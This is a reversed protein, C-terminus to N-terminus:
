SDVIGLLEKDHVEYNINSTDFEHSHFAVLHLKGDDGQWSLISSLALLWILTKHSASYTKLLWTYVQSLPKRIRSVNCMECLHHLRGSWCQKSKTPDMSIGRLSNVYDLFEVERTKCLPWIRTSTKTSWLCSFWGGRTNKFLDVFWRDLCIILIINLLDRFIGNVIHQFVLPANTIRFLMCTYEFHGYRTYFFIKQKNGM